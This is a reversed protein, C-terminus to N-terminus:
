SAPSAGSPREAPPNPARAGIAFRNVALIAGEWEFAVEYWGGRTVPISPVKLQLSVQRARFPESVNVKLPFRASAAGRHGAPSIVFAGKGEGPPLNRVLAVLEIPGADGPLRDVPLIEVVNHLTLGGEPTNEVKRCIVLAHVEIGSGGDTTSESM